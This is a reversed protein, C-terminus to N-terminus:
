EHKLLMDRIKPQCSEDVGIRVTDASIPKDVIKGHQAKLADSFHKNNMEMDNVNINRKKYHTGSEHLGLLEGHPVNSEFM